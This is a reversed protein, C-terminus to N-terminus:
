RRESSCYQGCWSFVRVNYGPWLVRPLADEQRRDRRLVAQVSRLLPRRESLLGRLVLHGSSLLGSCLGGGAMSCCLHM